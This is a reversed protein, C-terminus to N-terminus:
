KQLSSGRAEWGRVGVREEGRRCGEGARQHSFGPLSKHHTHQNNRSVSIRKPKTRTVSILHSCRKGDQLQDVSGGFKTTYSDTLPRCSCKQPRRRSFDSDGHPRFRAARSGGLPGAPSPRPGSSPLAKPRGIRGKQQTDAQETHAEDPRRDGGRPAPTTHRTHSPRCPRPQRNGRHTRLGPYHACQIVPRAQGSIIAMLLLVTRYPFLPATFRALCAALQCVPFKM